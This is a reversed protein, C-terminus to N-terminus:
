GEIKQFVLLETQSETMPALYSGTISIGRRGLYDILWERPIPRFITGNAIWVKVIDDTLCQETLVDFAIAGGPRVVRVMENLYGMVAEFPLYVFVKNAHVLDISASVTSTLTHGDCPQVVANPLRRLHPLWDTATEYIEYADPKLAAIVKESYRGTGAGIECVRHASSLGCLRIMADVTQATTGPVSFTLDVYDGVSLGAARAAAITERAPIFSQVAPDTTRGKIVQMNLPRLASNVADQAASKVSMHHVKGDSRVIVEVDTDINETNRQV